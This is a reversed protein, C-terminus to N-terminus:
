YSTLVGALIREIEALSEAKNIEDRIRAARPLGKIYWALHKRMERTATYEGKKAIAMNLHMNAIKMREEITPAALQQEGTLARRVERFLWPNGLSGRGIMVGDCGTHLLMRLADDGSFIDGNGIVPISVVQKVQKIIDWNAKGAYFQERTRGHVAIASAGADEVVKGMEVATPSNLDYAQRTKVTVPLSVAAVTQRVIEGALALNLMLAAGEGSKVIKPTPCGMNIDIAVAKTHREVLAAARAVESPIAGFLQVAIPQEALDIALLEWTKAQDYLIGKCSVMESVVYSAGFLKAILRCSQDVVGAMPAAIVPVGIDIKGIKM